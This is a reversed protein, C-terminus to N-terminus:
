VCGHPSKNKIKEKPQITGITDTQGPLAHHGGVVEVEGVFCFSQAM